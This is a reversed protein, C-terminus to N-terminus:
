LEQRQLRYVMDPHTTAHSADSNWCIVIPNLRLGLFRSNRAVGAIIEPLLRRDLFDLRGERNFEGETTTLKYCVWM